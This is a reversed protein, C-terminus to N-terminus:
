SGYDMSSMIKDIAEPDNPDANDFMVQLDVASSGNDVKIRGPKGDDKTGAVSSLSSPPKVEEAEAIKKDIGSPKPPPPVEAVTQGTAALYRKEVLAIQESKSLNNFDKDRSVVKFVNNVADWEGQDQQWKKMNKNAAIVTNWEQEETARTAAEQQEAQQKTEQQNKYIDALLKKSVVSEKYIEAQDEDYEKFSDYKAQEEPSLKKAEVARKYLEEGTLPPKVEEKHSVNNEQAELLKQQALIAMTENYKAEYDIKEEVETVEEEKGDEVEITDPTEEVATVEEKGDEIVTSSEEPEANLEDIGPTVFNQDDVELQAKGDDQEILTELDEASMGELDDDLKIDPM